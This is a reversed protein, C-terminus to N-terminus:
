GQGYTNVFEQFAYTFKNTKFHTPPCPWSGSVREILANNPLNLLMHARHLALKAEAVSDSQDM